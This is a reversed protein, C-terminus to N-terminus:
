NLDKIFCTAYIGEKLPPVNDLNLCQEGPQHVWLLIEGKRITAVLLAKHHWRYYFFAESCDVHEGLQTDLSTAKNFGYVTLWQDFIVIRQVSSKEEHLSALSKDPQPSCSEDGIGSHFLDGCVSMKDDKNEWYM